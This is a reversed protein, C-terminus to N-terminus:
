WVPLFATSCWSEDSENQKNIEDDDEGMSEPEDEGTTDTEDGLRKFLLEKLKKIQIAADIDGDDYDEEPEVDFQYLDFPDNNRM